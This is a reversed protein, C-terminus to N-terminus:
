PGIASPFAGDNSRYSTQDGVGAAGYFELPPLNQPEGGVTNHLKTYGYDRFPALQESQRPGHRAGPRNTTGTDFPVGIIAIDVEAPDSMHPLRMFTAPDAFRPMDAMATPQYREDAM